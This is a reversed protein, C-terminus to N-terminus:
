SQKKLKTSTKNDGFNLLFLAGCAAIVAVDRFTILFADLNFIMLGGLFSAAVLAAYHVYKGTLLWIGLYIQLVSIIDLTIKPKIFDATFEPIFSIWANPTKFASFAAYFFVLALGVRIFLSALKIRNEINLKM